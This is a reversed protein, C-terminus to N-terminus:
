APDWPMAVLFGARRAAALVDFVPLGIVNLMCGDVREVLAGGRGQIGYAGAKDLPEGSAVYSTIDLEALRRFYVTTTTEGSVIESGPNGFVAWGTTVRHARGSLSRLIAHAEDADAPKGIPQHKDLWVVTDAAVGLHHRTLVFHDRCASAKAIALRRALAPASEGARPSEDVDAPRVVVDFGIQALLDRRRPSASALLVTAM